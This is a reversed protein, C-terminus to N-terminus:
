RTDSGGTATTHSELKRALASARPFLVNNEKHIHMHLDVELERLGDLLARFTNCAGEPPTYDDSADRIDQLARGALNHEHEMMRIPNDVSGFPFSPGRDTREITRIAPFLLQEEKFMHPELEGRLQGFSEALRLLWPHHRGHASMVKDLLQTLRPLERRLYAHHTDVISDCMATLSLSPFDQDEINADASELSNLETLVSQPAVGARRCADELPRGGGCCYDIKHREFVRSTAPNTAVWAGVSDSIELPEKM